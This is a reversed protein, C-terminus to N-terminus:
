QAPKLKLGQPCAPPRSFMVKANEPPMVRINKPQKKLPTFCSHTNRPHRKLLIKFAIDTNGIIRKNQFSRQLKPTPNWVFIVIQSHQWSCLIQHSMPNSDIPLLLGYSSLHMFNNLEHSLCVLENFLPARYKETLDRFFFGELNQELDKHPTTYGLKANPLKLPGKWVCRSKSM